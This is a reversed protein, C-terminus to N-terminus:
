EKEYYVELITKIFHYIDNSGEESLLSAGRLSASCPPAQTYSRFTNMKHRTTHTLAAPEERGKDSAVNAM